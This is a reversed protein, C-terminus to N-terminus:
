GNTHDGFTLGATVAGATANSGGVVYAIRMYQENAGQPVMSIPLKKGVTLDALLVPGSSAAIRPSAFNATASVELNATLSTLTAFATTVEIVIPQNNGGGIDRKQAAPAGPASRVVGLNLHNTSAASATIAQGNSFQAFSDKM